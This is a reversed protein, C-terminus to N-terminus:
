HAPVALAKDLAALVGEKRRHYEDWRLRSYAFYDFKIPSYRAQARV